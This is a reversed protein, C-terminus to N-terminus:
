GDRAGFNAEGGNDTKGPQRWLKPPQWTASNYSAQMEQYEALDEKAAFPVAPSLFTGTVLATVPVLGGIIVIMLAMLPLRLVPAAEGLATLGLSCSTTALAAALTSFVVSFGVTTVLEGSKSGSKMGASTAAVAAVAPGAAAGALYGTVITGACSTACAIFSMQTNSARSHLILAQASSLLPPTFAPLSALM